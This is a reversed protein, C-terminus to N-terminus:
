KKNKIRDSQAHPLRQTKDYYPRAVARGVTGSFFAIYLVVTAIWATAIWIAIWIAIWTGIWIAIRDLYSDPGYDDLYSDWDLYSGWGGARWTWM